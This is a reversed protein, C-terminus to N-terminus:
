AAERWMPAASAPAEGQGARQIARAWSWAQTLEDRFLKGYRPLAAIAATDLPFLKLTKATQLYWGPVDGPALQRPVKLGAADCLYAAAEVAAKRHAHKLIEPLNFRGDRTVLNRYSM